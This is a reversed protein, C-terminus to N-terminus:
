RKARAEQLADLITRREVHKGNRGRWASAPRCRRCWVSRLWVHTIRGAHDRRVRLVPGIWARVRGPSVQLAVTGREIAQDSAFLVRVWPGGPHKPDLRSATRLRPIM